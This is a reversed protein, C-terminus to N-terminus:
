SMGPPSCPTSTAAASEVLVGSGQTAGEIRVTIGRAIDAVTQPDLPGNGQARAPPATLLTIMGLSGATLPVAMLPVAM